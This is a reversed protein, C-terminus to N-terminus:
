GIWEAITLTIAYYNSGIIWGAFFAIGLLASSIYRSYKRGAIWELLDDTIVEATGEAEDNADAVEAERASIEQVVIQEIAAREERTFVPM